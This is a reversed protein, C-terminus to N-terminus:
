VLSTKEENDYQEVAHVVGNVGNQNKVPIEAIPVRRQLWKRCRRFIAVVGIVMLSAGLAAVIVTGAIQAANLDSNYAKGIIFKSQQSMTNSRTVAVVYAGYQQSPDLDSFLVRSERGKVRKSRLEGSCTTEAESDLVCLYVIYSVVYPRSSGSDCSPYDWQILLTGKIHNDMFRINQPSQIDTDNDGAYLCKSWMVGTSGHSSQVSLGLMYKHAPQYLASSNLLCHDEKQPLHTWSIRSQCKGDLTKQCWFVTYNTITFTYNSQFIWSVQIDGRPEIITPLIDAKLDLVSSHEPVFCSSSKESQGALTFAKIFVVYASSCLLVATSSISDEGLVDYSKVLTESHDVAKHITINYGQIKGNRYNEPVPKWFFAVNREGAIDCDRRVYSFGGLLMEPAASPINEGTLVSVISIDSWHGYELDQGLDQGNKTPERNRCDVGVDYVTYPALECIVASGNCSNNEPNVPLVSWFSDDQGVSKYHIRYSKTCGTFDRCRQEKRYAWRIEVCSSNLPRASIIGVKPPQHCDFPNNILWRSRFLTVNSGNNTMINVTLNFEFNFDAPGREGYYMKCTLLTVEGCVGHNEEMSWEVHVKLESKNYTQLLDEPVTWNLFLYDPEM